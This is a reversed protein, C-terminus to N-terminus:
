LSAQEGVIVMLVVLGGKSKGSVPTTSIFSGSNLEKLAWSTQLTPLAQMAFLPPPM